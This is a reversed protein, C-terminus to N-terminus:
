KHLGGQGGGLRKGRRHMIAWIDLQHMKTYFKSIPWRRFRLKNELWKLNKNLLQAAMMMSDPDKKSLFIIYIHQWCLGITRQVALSFRATVIGLALQVGKVVRDVESPGERDLHSIPVTPSQSMVTPIRSASLNHCQVLRWECCHPQSPESLQLAWLHVPHVSSARHSLPDTVYNDAGPSAGLCVLHSTPCLCWSKIRKDKITAWWSPPSCYICKM